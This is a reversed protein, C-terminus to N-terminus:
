NEKGLRGAPGIRQPEEPRSISQEKEHMGRAIVCVEKCRLDVAPSYIDM